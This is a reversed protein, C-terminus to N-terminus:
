VNAEGRGPKNVKEGGGTPQGVQGDPNGRAQGPATQAKLVEAMREAHDKKAKEVEGKEYGRAKSATETCVFGNKWDESIVKPDSTMTPAADIEKFIVDISEKAVKGGLTVRVIEKAIERKYQDSPVAEMLTRNGEAERQRDDESKLNYNKPYNVTATKGGEYSSWFEALKREAKELMLGIFSLGSELGQNDMEKSDASAMKPSLTTLALNILLRIDEKLQREKAMSVILPESSPHIFGPRETNIPYRRGQAPGVKIEADKATDDGGVPKQYLAETRPEYQETYFPFNAKLAYNIDASELNLLAIQYDAVNKMLSTPITILTFPIKPLDLTYEYEGENGDMDIPIGDTDFFKLTIVNGVKKVYRFREIKDTPLNTLSDREYLHDCLLLHSFENPQGPVDCSWSRIDEAKYAYLYPRAKRADAVTKGDLIPMDVYIGVKAMILLELLIESGLYSNMSNGRLDVDASIADQYSQSGGIRTIDSLRQFISNKVENIGAAAFGPCFTMERRAKFDETSERSSL